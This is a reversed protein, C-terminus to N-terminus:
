FSIGLTNMIMQMFQYVNICLLGGIIHTLAKSLTGPQGGQGGVSTLMLLGRIFAITGFLEVVLFCDNIFQTWQDTGSVYSIPSPTGWFTSMGVQVSTPLYLLLSGVVLYAIPKMLGNDQSGMTRSEGFHKLQVVGYIILYMGIVYAIATIMRMAYPIQNALNELMGEASIISVGPASPSGTNPAAYAPVMAFLSAILSCALFYSQQKVKKIKSVFLM